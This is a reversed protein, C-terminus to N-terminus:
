TSGRTVRNFSPNIQTARAKFVDGLPTRVFSRAGILCMAFAFPYSGPMQEFLLSVCMQVAFLAFFVDIRDFTYLSVAWALVFASLPLIGFVGGLFIFGNHPSTVGGSGAAVYSLFENIPMGFPHTALVQLGSLISDLRDAINYAENPDATFRSAIFDLQWMLGFAIAALAVTTALRFLTSRQSPLLYPAALTVVGALLGGRSRTFYFVAILGVGVLISPIYNRRVLAYYAGAAASLAAVHGAENPHGYLGSYRAFDSEASSFVYAYGPVLGWEVLKSSYDSAQLIFIPVTALLGIILGWCFWELSAADSLVTALYLAAFSYLIYHYALIATRPDSSLAPAAFLVIVIIGFTGLSIIRRPSFSHIVLLLASALTIFDLLRYGYGGTASAQEGNGGILVNFQICFGFVFAFCQNLVPKIHQFASPQQM